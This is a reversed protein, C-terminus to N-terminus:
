PWRFMPIVIGDEEEPPNLPDPDTPTRPTGTLARVGVFVIAAGIGAVLMGTRRRDLERLDVSMIEQRDLAVRQRLGAQRAGGVPSFPVLIAFEPGRREAKGVLQRREQGLEEQMRWAANGSLHVRVESGTLVDELSVPVHRYCGSTLAALVVVALLGKM